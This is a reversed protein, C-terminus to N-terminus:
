ESFTLREQFMLFLVTMRAWIRRLKKWAEKRLIVWFGDSEAMLLKPSCNIRWRYSIWKRKYKSHLKRGTRLSSTHHSQHPCITTRCVVSVANRVVIQMTPLLLLQPPCGSPSCGILGVIIYPSNRNRHNLHFNPYHSFWLCVHVLVEQFVTPKSAFKCSVSCFSLLFSDNITFFDCIKYLPPLTCKDQTLLVVSCLFLKSKCQNKKEIIHKRKKCHILGRLNQRLWPSVASKQDTTERRFSAPIEKHLEAPSLWNVSPGTTHISIYMWHTCVSKCLFQMNTKCIWIRKTGTHRRWWSNWPWLESKHGEDNKLLDAREEMNRWRSRRRKLRCFIPLMGVCSGIIVIVKASGSWFKGFLGSKKNWESHSQWQLFLLM